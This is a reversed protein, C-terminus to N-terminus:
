EENQTNFKVNGAHLGCKGSITWVVYFNPCAQKVHLAAVSLSLWVKRTVLGQHDYSSVCSVM